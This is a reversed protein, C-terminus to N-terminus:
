ADRRVALALLKDRLEVALVDLVQGRDIGHDYACTKILSEVEDPPEYEHRVYDFCREQIEYPAKGEIQVQLRPAIEQALAVADLRESISRGYETLQLPSGGGLVHSPLRRLIEKIDNRVEKMFDKFSARDSDVKGKWQGLTFVAGVLAVLLGVWVWPNAFVDNVVAADMM